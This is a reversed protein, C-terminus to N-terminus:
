RLFVLQIGQVVLRLELQFAPEIQIHRFSYKQNLLLTYPDQGLLFYPYHAQLLIHQQYEFSASTPRDSYVSAFPAGAAIEEDTPLWEKERL